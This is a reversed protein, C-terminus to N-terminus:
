QYSIVYTITSNITGAVVNQFTKTLGMTYKLENAGATLSQVESTAMSNPTVALGTADKIVVGTNNPMGGVFAKTATYGSATGNFQVQAAVDSPCGNLKITFDKEAAKTTQGAASGNISSIAVTGFDVPVTLSAADIGCTSSLINGSFQLTGTEAANAANMSFGAVLLVALSIHKMKM